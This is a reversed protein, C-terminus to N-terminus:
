EEEKNKLNKWIEAKIFDKNFITIIQETKLDQITIKNIGIDVVRCSKRGKFEFNNMYQYNSNVKIQFGSVFNKIFDKVLMIIIVPVAAGAIIGIGQMVSETLQQDLGKVM